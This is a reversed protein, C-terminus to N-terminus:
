LGIWHSFSLEEGYFSISPFYRKGAELIHHDTSGEINVQVMLQSGSGYPIM